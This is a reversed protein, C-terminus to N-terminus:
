QERKEKITYRRLKRKVKLSMQKIKKDIQTDSTVVLTDLTITMYMSIQGESSKRPIIYM